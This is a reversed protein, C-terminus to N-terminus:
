RLHLLIIVAMEEDYEGLYDGDWGLRPIFNNFQNIFRSGHRNEDLDNSISLGEHLFYLIGSSKDYSYHHMKSDPQPTFFAFQLRTDTEFMYAFVISNDYDGQLLNSINDISRSNKFVYKPYRKSGKFVYLTDSRDNVHFEDNYVYSATEAFSFSREDQQLQYQFPNAYYALINGDGSIVAYQNEISGTINPFHIM